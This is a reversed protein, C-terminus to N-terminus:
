ARSTWADYSGETTRVLVPDGVTGHDGTAFTSSAVSPDDVDVISTLGSPRAIAIPHSDNPSLVTPQSPFVGNYGPVFDGAACASAATPAM